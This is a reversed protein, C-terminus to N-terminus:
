SLNEYSKETFFVLKNNGEEFRLVEIIGENEPKFFGLYSNSIGNYLLIPTNGNFAYYTFFELISGDESKFTLVSTLQQITNPTTFKISTENTNISRFLEIIKDDNFQYYVKFFEVPQQEITFNM